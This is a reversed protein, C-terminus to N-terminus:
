EHAPASATLRARVAASADGGTFTTVGALWADLLEPHAALQRQAASRAPTKKDQLAAIM